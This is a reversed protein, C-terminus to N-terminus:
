IVMVGKGYITDIELNLELIRGELFKSNSLTVSKIYPNILLVEKIYRQAESQILSPTYKKGILKNIETGYNWSYIDKSYRDVQLAKYVWTKIAELGEVIKFTGNELIPMNKEFDWAVEKYVPLRQTNNINLEIFEFLNTTM